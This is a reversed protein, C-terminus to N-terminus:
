TDFFRFTFLAFVYVGVALGLGMYFMLSFLRNDFRLHMFYLVVAFFKVAMLLLLVPIFLPGWFDITYSMAVELATVVALAIALKIFSLDSWHEGHEDGEHEVHEEAHDVTEKVAENPQDYGEGLHKTETLDSM